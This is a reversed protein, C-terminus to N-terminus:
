EDPNLNEDYTLSNNKLAEVVADFDFHMKDRESQELWLPSPSRLIMGNEFVVVYGSIFGEQTLEGVNFKM